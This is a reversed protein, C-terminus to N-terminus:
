KSAEELYAYVDFWTSDAVHVVGQDDVVYREDSALDYPEDSVAAAGSTTDIQDATEQTWFAYSDGDTLAVFIDSINGAGSFVEQASSSAGAIDSIDGVTVAADGDGVFDKVVEDKVPKNADAIAIDDDDAWVYQLKALPNQLETGLLGLADLLNDTKVSVSALGGDSSPRLLSMMTSTDSGVLNVHLGMLGLRLLEPLYIGGAGIATYGGSYDLYAGTGYQVFLGHLLSSSLVRAWDKFYGGTYVIKGGSVVYMGWDSKDWFSKFADQRSTIQPLYEYILNSAGDINNLHTLAVSMYTAINRVHEYLTAGVGQAPRLDSWINILDGHLSSTNTDIRPLYTNLLSQIPTLDASIEALANDTYRQNNVAMMASARVVDLLSSTSRLTYGGVRVFDQDNTIKTPTDWIDYPLTNYYSLARAAKSPEDDAASIYYEQSDVDAESAMVPGALALIAILLIVPHPALVRVWPVPSRFRCTVM